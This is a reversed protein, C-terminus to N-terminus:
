PSSTDSAEPPVDRACWDPTEDEGEVARLHREGQAALRQRREEAVLAELQATDMQELEELSSPVRHEVRETPMGLAQNIWPILAKAAKLDGDGVSQGLLRVAKDVNAAEAVLAEAVVARTGLRQLLPEHGFTVASSPGARQKQSWGGVGRDSKSVVAGVARNDVQGGRV